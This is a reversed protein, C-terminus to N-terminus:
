EIMDRVMTLFKRLGRDDPFDWDPGAAQWIEQLEAGSPNRELLETLFHKVVLQDSQQLFGLLHTVLGEETTPGLTLMIDQHFCHALHRFEAPVQM